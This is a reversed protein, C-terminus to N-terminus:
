LRRVVNSIALIGFGASVLWFPRILDELAPVSMVDLHILIGMLGLIVGVVWTIVQPASLNM